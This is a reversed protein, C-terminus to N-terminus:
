KDRLQKVRKYVWELMGTNQEHLFNKRIDWHREHDPRDYKGLSFSGGVISVTQILNAPYKAGFAKEIEALKTPKMAIDATNVM